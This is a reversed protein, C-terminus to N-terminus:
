LFVSCFMEQGCDSALVLGPLVCERHCPGRTGQPKRDYWIFIRTQKSKIYSVSTGDSIKLSPFSILISATRHSLLPTKNPEMHKFLRLLECVHKMQTTHLGKSVAALLLSFCLNICCALPQHAIRENRQFTSPKIEGTIAFEQASILSLYNLVDQLNCGLAALDGANM